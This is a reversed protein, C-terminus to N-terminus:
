SLEQPNSDLNRKYDQWQLVHDEAEFGGESRTHSKSIQTDQMKFVPSLPSPTTAYHMFSRGAACGMRTGNGNRAARNRICQRSTDQSFLSLHSLHTPEPSGCPPGLHHEQSSGEVQSLGPLHAVSPLYM